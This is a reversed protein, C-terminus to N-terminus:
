KYYSHFANPGRFQIEGEEGVPLVQDDEERAIRVECGAVPLGNTKLRLDEAMSRRTFSVYGAAETMGFLQFVLIEPADDGEDDPPNRLPRHGGRHAGPRLGGPQLGTR